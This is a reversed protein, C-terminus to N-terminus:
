PSEPRILAEARIKWQWQPSLHMGQTPVHMYTTYSSGPGLRFRLPLELNTEETWQTDTAPDSLTLTIRAADIVHGTTNVYTYRLWLEEHGPYGELTCEHLLLMGEGPFDLEKPMPNQRAFEAQATEFQRLEAQHHQSIEALESQQLRRDGSCGCLLILGVSPFLDRMNM